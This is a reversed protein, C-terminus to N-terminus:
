EDEQEGIFGQWIDSMNDLVTQRCTVQCAAEVEGASATVTCTGEGVATVVGDKVTAVSEDSSSWDVNGKWNSPSTDAKLTASEGESLALETQDLRISSAAVEGCTVQCDASEGDAMATIVCAGQGAWAVMGDSVTAVNPDSSNWEVTGEWNEPLVTAHLDVHQNGSLSLETRDLIIRTAQVPQIIVRGREEARNGSQDEVSYIVSYTGAKDRDVLSDDVQVQDSLDGDAADTATVADRYDFDEGLEVVIDQVSLEPPTKDRATVPVSKQTARGHADKAEVLVTFTGAKPFRISRGDENLEGDGSLTVTYKSQDRVEVILEEVAVPKGCEVRYSSVVELEPPTHDGLYYVASAGAGAGIALVGICILIIKKRKM